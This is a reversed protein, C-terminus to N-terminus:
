CALLSALPVFEQNRPYGSSNRHIVIYNHRSKTHTPHQFHEQRETTGLALPFLPPFHHCSPVLPSAATQILLLRIWCGVPFPHDISRGQRIQPTGHIRGTETM